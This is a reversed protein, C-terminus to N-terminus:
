AHSRSHAAVRKLEAGGLLPLVFLNALIDIITGFVVVLGFRQTPPFDSLVFIAFGAAIIVDSYVIGRWQEERASVWASWGTKGDRGARRVGFM